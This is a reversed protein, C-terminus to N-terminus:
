YDYGHPHNEYWKKLSQVSEALSKKVEWGLLQKAKRPDAYVAAYEGKRPTGASESPITINFIEEVKTIMERVSYGNGNGLNFAEIGEHDIVYQAALYHAEALDEVDIFDRIPTGDPTDVKPCTLTFPKIKMAGLVLNQVLHPSPRKSDGILGDHSAGCVNFYRLISVRFQHSSSYWKLMKECMLKSEGYPNIPQLPHKEDIPLYQNEGFVSCSSSFVISKVDAARMAELLHFTGVVNNQFYIEPNRVSEDVSLLAALHMVIDIKEKKFVNEIDSQNKLDGEYVTISGFKKLLDLPQHFGAKFNDFVIVEAGKELFFRVVHAGIYGAGGVVLIRKKM